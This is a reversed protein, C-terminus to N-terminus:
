RNIRYKRHTKLWNQTSDSKTDFPTFNFNYNFNINKFKITENNIIGFLDIRDVRLSLPDRYLYEIFLSDESVRYVGPSFNKDQNKISELMVVTDYYLADSIFCTGDTYFFLVKYATDSNLDQVKGLYFGGLHLNIYNARFDKNYFSLKDYHIICSTVLFLCSTIFVKKM